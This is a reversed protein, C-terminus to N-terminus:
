QPALRYVMLEDEKDWSTMIKGTFKLYGMAMKFQLKTCKEPVWDMELIRDNVEYESLIKDAIDPALEWTEWYETALRIGEDTPRFLRKAWLKHSTMERVQGREMMRRLAQRASDPRLKLDRILNAETMAVDTKALQTIIQPMIQPRQGRAHIRRVSISLPKLKQLKAEIEETTKGSEILM